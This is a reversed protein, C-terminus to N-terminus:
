HRRGRGVSCERRDRRIHPLRVRRPSSLTLAGDVLLPRVRAPDQLPTPGPPAHASALREDDGDPLLTDDDIMTVFSIQPFSAQINYSTCFQAMTKSGERISRSACDCPIRM